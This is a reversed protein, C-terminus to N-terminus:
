PRLSSQVQARVRSLPTPRMLAGPADRLMGDSGREVLRAGHGGPIVIHEPPESNVRMVGQSMGVPRYTGESQGPRLFLLYREGTSLAPEGPVQMGLEGVVGGLSRMTLTAPAPGSWSDLVRVRFDTVIRRRDDFHSERSQAEVIVILTARDTLDDLSLAELTTAFVQSAASTLTITVLLLWIGSRKLM